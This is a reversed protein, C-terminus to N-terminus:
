VEYFDLVVNYIADNGDLNTYKIYYKTNAKLIFERSFPSETSGGGKQAVAKGGALYLTNSLVGAGTITPNVSFTSLPSTVINFDHNVVVINSGGSLTADRYFDIKGDSNATHAHAVHVAKSGTSIGINIVAASLVGAEFYTAQWLTGQHVKYHFEDATIPIYANEGVLLKVLNSSYETNLSYQSLTLDSLIIRWSKTDSLFVLKGIESAGDIKNDVIDTSLAIYSPVSDLSIIELM